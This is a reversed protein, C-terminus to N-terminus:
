PGLVWMVGQQGLPAPSAGPDLIGQKEPGGGGRGDLSHNEASHARSPQNFDQNGPEVELTESDTPRPPPSGSM